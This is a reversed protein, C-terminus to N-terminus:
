KQFFDKYEIMGIKDLWEDLENFEEDKNYM